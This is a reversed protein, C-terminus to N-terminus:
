VRILRTGSVIDHWTRKQNDALSWLFGAGAAAASLTAILLRVMSRGYGPCNGDEDIIKVKWARMGVTMGGKTWCWCFYFSGVAALFLTYGPDKLATQNEFGALVALLAALMLLALVVVGDYLIIALRRPLACPNGSTQKRRKM